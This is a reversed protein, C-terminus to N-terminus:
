KEVSYLTQNEKAKFSFGTIEAGGLSEIRFQIEAYDPLPVTTTGEVTDTSHGVSNDTTDTFILTWSTEADKKYYLKVSGATPLYAYSVAVARPKAEDKAVYKTTEMYSIPTATAYASLSLKHVKYDATSIYAHNYGVDFNVINSATGGDELYDFAITVALPYGSKRRGVAWIGQYPRGTASDNVAFFVKGFQQRVAGTVLSVTSPLIKRFVVEASGGAYQSVVMESGSPTVKQGVAVLTGGTSGLVSYSGDELEIIEDALAKAFDWIYIYSASTLVALYSGYNALGIINEDSPITLLATGWNTGDFYYLVNAIPIYLYGNSKGIIANCYSTGNPTALTAGTADETYTNTSTAYSWFRVGVSSRGYYKGKYKIFIMRDLSNNASEANTLAEWVANAGSNLFLKPKNTGGGEAKFGYLMTDSGTQSSETIFNTARNGESGATLGDNNAGITKYPILRKPDSFIDFHKSVEFKFSSQERISDAMGGYFNNLTYEDM